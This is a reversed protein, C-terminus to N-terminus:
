GALRRRLLEYMAVAGAVSANLSEVPGPVPISARFDCTREVLPRLGREGGLVLVVKEPLELRFIDPADRPVLAVAWYGRESTAALARALNVVRCIPIDNVAGAAAKEVAATIGVAGRQPLIVGGMCVAAATRLLAGLNQPDHIQDLALLPADGGLLSALEAYRYPDLRAAVGQHADSGARRRLEADDVRAVPVRERTALAVIDARRPSPSATVLVQRVSAPDKRLREEVPHIGHIWREGERANVQWDGKVVM